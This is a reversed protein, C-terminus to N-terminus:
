AAIALRSAMWDTIATAAAQAGNTRLGYVFRLADERAVQQEIPDSLADRVGQILDQHRYVNIGVHAADWFRLGPGHPPKWYRANMLVVPRGTAAFEFITSSNDCVYVDALRCVDEFDAVFPIGARAYHRQMREQWDGKPHAHGIVTFAKALEPLIPLYDALATGAYGSISIPAPWHFSIAVVKAPNPEKRPLDDLKPCGVIEVQARPYSARWKQAAYDNPVMVLEHDAREPGGAYSSHSPGDNGYAQGAGHELFAFPGYGLRRGIKADGISAILAPRDNHQYGKQPTQQIARVDMPEADIGKDRARSLLEPAVLFRGRHPPPLLRWVPAMHDLFQPECALADIV